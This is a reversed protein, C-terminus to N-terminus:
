EPTLISCAAQMEPTDHAETFRPVLDRLRRRPEESAAYPVGCWAILARLELWRAQQGRAIGAARALAAEVDAADHGTALLLQGRLRHLEADWWRENTSRAEALADDLTALGDEPRGAAAQARALLSLYYPLRLRAGCAKFEEIAASLATIHESDPQEHAQAYALLIAAWARYYPSKYEITLALAEEARTRATAADAGMQCLMALYTAALSQNFRQELSLALPVAEHGSRMAREPYGLCWLAHAHWARTHVAFDWGQSEELNRVEQPDHTTLIRAFAAEAEVVRGLHLQAGALMMDSLPPVVGRSREYLAHLEVAVTQVRELRAQVVLLSQLGYLAEARQADTAVIDCLALTRDVVRELEPATWGRTIRYLPALVLLIILELKDRATGGPLQPLLDLCHRLLSIADEHAFVRQAVLAAQHYYPIAREVSGGHEYHAAIQGSVPDLDDTHLAELARAIRRHWLHRQPASIESQAVERLKDHAFDYSGPGRERVIRRQWLEDLSRVVSEEGAQSAQMLIDLGFERGVVAALGALERAPPSLQALRGSIVSRVGAPLASPEPAASAPTAQQSLLADLGARVTEMVFLPNGETEDFLRMAAPTDLQRDIMHAALAATEAADLPQLAIETVPISRRLHLLLSQLPHDAPTEDARATGLVLLHARADFRLFFHLWELTDQDCWQLDDIVLLLPQPAALVALALAHFFRQRHSYENLPERPPLEPFEAELEPLVRAVETLWTLELRGLRSRLSAGRLWEIIPALPLRGEVAYTRTSATTAGAQSAWRVMEEALRSKGIGAEGTILVFGPGNTNAAQWAHRLAEWERQRGVLPVQGALPPPASVGAAIPTVDRAAVSPELHLLRQHLEETAPSPDIGLEHQLTGACTQYAVLEGARDGNLALLRMLARHTEEDLQDARLMRRAYSIATVYDHRAECLGILRGLTKLFRARLREREPQIWEDYCGPLLGAQYCEVVREGAERWAADDPQREAREITGCAREFEEIDLWLPADGRWCVTRSDVTLFASVEPLTTRLAHLLQRLNNRAQAETSDPWFLYALHQRLQPTGRHLALYAILSQLRATNIREITTGDATLSFGGLLRVRPTQVQLM